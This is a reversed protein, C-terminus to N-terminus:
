KPATLQIPTALSHNGRAVLTKEGRHEGAQARVLYTGPPLKFDCVKGTCREEFGDPGTVVFEASAIRPDSVYM